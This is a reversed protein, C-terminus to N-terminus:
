IRKASDKNLLKSLLDKCAETINNWCPLDFELKNELTM